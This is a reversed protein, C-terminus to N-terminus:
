NLFHKPLTHEMSVLSQFYMGRRAFDYYNSVLSPASLLSIRGKKVMIPEFEFLTGYPADNPMFRVPGPNIVYVRFIVMGPSVFVDTVRNVISVPRLVVEKTIEGNNNMIVYRFEYKLFGIM